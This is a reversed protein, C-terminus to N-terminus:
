FTAGFQAATPIHQAAKQNQTQEVIDAAVKAMAAQQDADTAGLREPLFEIFVNVYSDAAPDGEYLKRRRSLKEAPEEVASTWRPQGVSQQAFQEYIPASPVGTEAASVSCAM